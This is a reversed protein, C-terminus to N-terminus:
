AKDATVPPEDFAVRVLIVHRPDAARVTFRARGYHFSEGVAPIHGLIYTVFGGMTDFDEEEPLDFDFQENFDEIRMTAQVDLHREDLWCFAPEGESPTEHEDHIEGILEELVDELTVLGSTGGYEDLVIAMHTNTRQFEELLESITKTEPVFYPPRMLKPIIPKEWDDTAAYSILDKVHLVGIIQDRNGRYVPLRSNGSEMSLAAARKLTASEAVSVMDTRPTMIERVPTHQLKVAERFVARAEADPGIGNPGAGTSGATEAGPGASGPEGSFTRLLRFPAGVVRYAPPVLYVAVRDRLLWAGIEPLIWAALLAVLITTFMAAPRGYGDAALVAAFMAAAVCGAVTFSLAVLEREELCREVAQRRARPLHTLAELRSWTFLSICREMLFCAFSLSALLVPLWLKATM